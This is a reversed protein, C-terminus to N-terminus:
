EFQRCFEEWEQKKETLTEIWYGKDSEYDYYNDCHYFFYWDRGRYDTKNFRRSLDLYKIINMFDDLSKVCYAQSCILNDEDIIKTKIKKVKDTIILMEEHVLADRECDFTKGDLTKYVTKEVITQTTIKDM